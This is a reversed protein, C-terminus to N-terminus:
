KLFQTKRVFDSWFFVVRYPGVGLTAHKLAVAKPNKQKTSLITHRGGALFFIIACPIRESKLFPRHFNVLIVSFTVPASALAVTVPGSVAPITPM